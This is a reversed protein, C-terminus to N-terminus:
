ASTGPKRARVLISVQYDRDDYDIEDRRLDEAALGQLFATAALVNGRTEVTVDRPAFASEFLTRASLATFNWRWHGGWDEHHTQSIGPLTALLVGGPRLMRQLSRIAGELDAILQLTQTVIVCDFRDAPMEEPRSLDGIITTQPHRDAVNLVDSSTVALGGFQRTYRDDGVELVRGRIDGAHGALFREIYYRDVPLGRELGWNRTVPATRRLDGFRVRGVPPTYASGRWLRRLRDQTSAPFHRLGWRVPRKLVARLDFAGQLCTRNRQLAGRLADWVETDQIGHGTLYQEVWELFARRAVEIRGAREATACSQAPHQRYRDWCGDAAFVPMSLFVKAYFAQDTFLDLFREEFGGVREVAARRILVSCTCPVPSQGSLILALLRPPAILTNSPVGLRETFDRPRDAEAGTWSYWYQTRNYIMAAEPHAEAIALQAELKGPVWVDDADLFAIYRGRAHRIGLNRAASAGRRAHEPHELCRVREPDRAAHTRAIDTGGDRSGDDVLLLEWGAYTQARVSAISETLFPQANLFPVVISVEPATM